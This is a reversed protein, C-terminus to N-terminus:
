YTRPGFLPVRERLNKAFPDDEFPEIRPRLLDPDLGGRIAGQSQPQRPPIAGILGAAPGAVSLVKDLFNAQPLGPISPPSPLDPVEFTDQGIRQAALQALRQGIDRGGQGLASPRLGGTFEILYPKIRDPVRVRVDQVNAALNGRLGQQFRTTPANLEFQARQAGLSARQLQQQAIQNQIRAELEAQDQLNTTEQQRGRARGTALDSLVPGLQSLVDAAKEGKGKRNFLSAVTDAIMPIFEVFGREDQWLRRLWTM